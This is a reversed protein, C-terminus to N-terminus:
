PVFALAMPVKSVFSKMGRSKAIMKQCLSAAMANGLKQAPSSSLGKEQAQRIPPMCNTSVEPCEGLWVGGFQGGNEVFLKIEIGVRM